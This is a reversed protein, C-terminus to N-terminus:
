SCGSGGPVRAMGAAAAAVQQQFPLPAVSEILDCTEGIGDGRHCLDAVRKCRQAVERSTCISDLVAALKAGNVESRSLCEGVGLQKMRAANDPQDHAVPVAIQPVGCTMACSITGVGGHHVIAICRPLIQTLPAFPAHHLGSPLDELEEGFSALILGRRGLRSCADVASNLFARPDASIAMEERPGAMFVIPPSGNDLFAEVDEPVPSAGDFLPFNTLRTQAPWEPEISAFWPPFLGITMLPSFNWGRGASGLLIDLPPVLVPESLYEYAFQFGMPPVVVTVVPIGQAEQILRSAFDLYHAVIFTRGPEIHASIAAYMSPVLSTACRVVEPYGHEPHWIRPNRILCELYEAETGIEELKLGARLVQASYHGHTILTVDHGRANLELGLGILPYVDGPTGIATLIAKM